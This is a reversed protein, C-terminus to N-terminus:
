FRGRSIWAGPAFVTVDLWGPGPSAGCHGAVVDVIYVTTSGEGGPVAGYDYAVADFSPDNVNGRKGNYAFRTDAARLADVIADMLDWTGGPATQCSNPILGPNAAFVGQVIASGDFLPLADSPVSSNPNGPIGPASVPPLGPQRALAAQVYRRMTQVNVADTSAEADFVDMLRANVSVPSGRQLAAAQLAILQTQQDAIQDFLAQLIQRTAADKVLGLQGYGAM